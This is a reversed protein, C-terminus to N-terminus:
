HLTTHTATHHSTIHHSQSTSSITIHHPKHSQSTTQKPTIYHSTIRHPTTHHSKTSHSIIHSTIHHSAIRHSAIRLSITHQLTTRFSQSKLSLCVYVLFGINIKLNSPCTRLKSKSPGLISEAVKRTNIATNISSSKLNHQNCYGFSTEPTLKSDRSM